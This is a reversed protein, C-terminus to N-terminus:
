IDETHGDEETFGAEDGEKDSATEEESYGDSEYTLFGEDERSYEGSDDHYGDETGPDTESKESVEEGSPGSEEGSIVVESEENESVGTLENARASLVNAPFEAFILLAALFAAILRNVNKKKM